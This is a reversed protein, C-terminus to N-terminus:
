RIDTDFRMRHEVLDYVCEDYGPEGPKVVHEIYGHTDPATRIALWVGSWWIRFRQIRTFPVKELRLRNNM